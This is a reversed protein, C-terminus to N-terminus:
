EALEEKLADVLFIYTLIKRLFGGHYIRESSLIRIAKNVLPQLRNRPLSVKELKELLRHRNREFFYDVGFTHIPRDRGRRRQFYEFYRIFREMWENIQNPVHPIYSNSGVSPIEYLEPFYNKLIRRQFVGPQREHYPLSYIASLVDADLVM